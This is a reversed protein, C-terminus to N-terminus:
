KLLLTTRSTYNIIKSFFFLAENDLYRSNQTKLFDVSKLIQSTTMPMVVYHFNVSIRIEKSDNLVILIFNPWISTYQIVLMKLKNKNWNQLNYVLELGKIIKYFSLIAFDPWKWYNVNVVKLHGKNLKKKFFFLLIKVYSTM